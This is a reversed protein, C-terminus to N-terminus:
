GEDQSTSGLKVMQGRDVLVQLGVALWAAWGRGLLEAVYFWGQSLMKETSLSLAPISSM